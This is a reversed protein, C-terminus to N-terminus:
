YLHGGGEGEGEREGALFVSEGWGGFVTCLLWGMGIFIDAKSVATASELFSVELGLM